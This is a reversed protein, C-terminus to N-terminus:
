HSWQNGRQEQQNQGCGYGHLVGEERVDRIRGPEGVENGGGGVVVVEEVTGIEFGGFGVGGCVPRLQGVPLVCVKHVRGVSDLLQWINVGFMEVHDVQIRCSVSQVLFDEVSPEPFLHFKDIIVGRNSVKGVITSLVVGEVVLSFGLDM